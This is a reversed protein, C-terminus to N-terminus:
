GVRATMCVSEESVVLDTSSSCPQSHYVRMPAADLSAFPISSRSVEAYYARPALRAGRRAEEAGGRRGLVGQRLLFGDTTTAADNNSGTDFLFPVDSELLFGDSGAHELPLAKTGDVPQPRCCLLVFALLM